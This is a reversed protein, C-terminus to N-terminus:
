PSKKELKNLFAERQRRLEEPPAVREQLRLENQEAKRRAEARKAEIEKEEARKREARLDQQRQLRNFKQLRVDNAQTRRAQEEDIEGGGVTGVYNYTKAANARKYEEYAQTERQAMARVKERKHENPTYVTYAGSYQGQSTDGQATPVHNIGRAQNYEEGADYDNQQRPPLGEGFNLNTRRAGAGISNNYGHNMNSTSSRSSSAATAPIPTTRTTSTTSAAPRIGVQQPQIPHTGRGRSNTGRGRTQTQYVSRSTFSKSM